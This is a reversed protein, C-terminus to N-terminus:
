TLWILFIPLEMLSHMKPPMTFSIPQLPMMLSAPQSEEQRKVKAVKLAAIDLGDSPPTSPSHSPKDQDQRLKRLGSKLLNLQQM